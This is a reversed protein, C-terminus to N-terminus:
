GLQVAVGAQLHRSNYTLGKKFQIELTTKGIQNKILTAAPSIKMSLSM